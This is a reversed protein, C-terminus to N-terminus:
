SRASAPSVVDKRGRSSRRALVVPVEEKVEVLEAGPEPLGPESKVERVDGATAETDGEATGILEVADAAELKREEKVEVKVEQVEVVGEGVGEDAGAGVEEEKVVAAPCWELVLGTRARLLAAATEALRHLGMARMTYSVVLLKEYSKKSAGRAHCLYSIHVYM